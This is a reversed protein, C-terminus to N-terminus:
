NCGSFSSAIIRKGCKRCNRGGYIWEPPSCKCSNLNWKNVVGPPCMLDDPEISFGDYDPGGRWYDVLQVHLEAIDIENVEYHTLGYIEIFKTALGRLIKEIEANYKQWKEVDQKQM